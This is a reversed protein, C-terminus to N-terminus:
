IKPNEVLLDILVDPHTIMPFHGTDIEYCPIKMNKARTVMADLALDQSCKIYVKNLKEFSSSKFYLKQQFSKLPHPTSMNKFWKVDEAAILGYSQPTGVPVEWGNEKQANRYLFSSIEPGIADFMSEGNIPLVAAVYMLKKIKRPIRDAVGTIVMGGYSHGVLIIEDLEEYFITNLVDQVHTELDVNPHTLHKREAIGTLTPTLVLHKKEELSNRVKKWCNGGIMGGHILVFNSM